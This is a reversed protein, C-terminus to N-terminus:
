PLVASPGAPGLPASFLLSLVVGVCRGRVARCSVIRYLISSPGPHASQIGVVLTVVPSPSPPVLACPRPRPRPRCCSCVRPRRPRDVTSLSMQIMAPPAEKDLVLRGQTTTVQQHHLRSPPFSPRPSCCLGQTEHRTRDSFSTATDRWCGLLQWVNDLRTFVSGASTGTQVLCGTGRREDGPREDATGVWEDDLTRVCYQPGLTTHHDRTTTLYQATGPPCCGSLTKTPRRYCSPCPRRTSCRIAFPHGSARRKRVSTVVLDLRTRLM